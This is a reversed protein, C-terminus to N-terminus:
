GLDLIDNVLHLLLKSSTKATKNWKKLKRLLQKLSLNQDFSEEIENICTLSIESATIIANLPTRFEHSVNSM